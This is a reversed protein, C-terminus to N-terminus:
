DEPIVEEAIKAPILIRFTTGKGVESSKVFLKGGHYDEIIRKALTLGLGWGRKKTSFGPNFIKNANAKTMGKGTDQIDILIQKSNPPAQLTVHIEGIGSMADVANKCINEVVWEFLNKNLLATQGESLQDHIFFHVKSSVRKQLYTIFSTVITSVSEQKLTPVSGINSFRTTIMELRVVDKEIEDAISSDINPDSRFYEVWAMLSSLPTGLQHATEKALGVWVRNQEAKRAASFALYALYGILLMVTLQVFPYYRLQTLLFSNSYYIYGTKGEGIQVPVPIHESKMKVLQAEIIREKDRLSANKPFNINRHIPFNNEDVYIVPIQYFTVADQIVGMIVTFNEDDPSNVIYRLGEGYLRVEREEREELKDVLDNTYFLSAISLILLVVGIFYKFNGKREYTEVLSRRLRDSNLLAVPHLRFRPKNKPTEAIM